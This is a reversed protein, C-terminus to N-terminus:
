IGLYAKRIHENQMLEKSEGEIVIRGNELVYARDAIQMARRVNQEVLLITSGQNRLEQIVRFTEAIVLPALGYSPEDFLFMKPKSMISRGIALMQREGGSLTRVLQWAREKLVPFIQYVLELTEKKQKWLKSVYSGMELNEQVSMDLFGGGGERVQSIGLEVIRYPPMKDIRQGLFEVSGSAPHILGSITTLVTTKGAANAGILTVIEKEGVTLSVDWLAQAKGYFVDISSIKLM